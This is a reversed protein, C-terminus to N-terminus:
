LLSALATNLVQLVVRLLVLAALVSLDIGGLPPIIRRLPRLLPDNLASIFPALPAHPNIWSFVVEILLLGMFGYAVWNLLQQVSLLLVFQANFFPTQWVAAMVAIAAVLMTGVLSSWDYGGLAPMVRRLPLVLWNSLKFILGAISDPPRVRAAQAWFRLLLVAAMVTAATDVILGVINQLL